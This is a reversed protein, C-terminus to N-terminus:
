QCNNNLQNRVYILDLVNIKGDKNTDAQWNNSTEPDNLLRNRVFILDLVNVKCDMNVDGPTAWLKDVTTTAEAAPVKTEANDAVDRTTCYFSYEGRNGQPSIMGTRQNRSTTITGAYIDFGDAEYNGFENGATLIRAM